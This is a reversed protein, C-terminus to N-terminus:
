RACSASRTSASPPRRWRAASWRRWRRTWWRRAGCCSRRAVRRVAGGGGGCACPQATRCRLGVRPPGLRRPREAGVGAAPRSRKHARRPSPPPRAPTRSRGGSGLGADIGDMWGDQAPPGRRSRRPRPMCAAAASAAAAAAALSLQTLNPNRLGRGCRRRHVHLRGPSEAYTYVVTPRPKPVAMGWRPGARGHAYLLSSTTTGRGGGPAGAPPEGVDDDVYRDGAHALAPPRGPPASAARDARRGSLTAARYPAAGQGRARSHTPGISGADIPLGQGATRCSASGASRCAWVRPTQSAAWGGRSGLSCGRM